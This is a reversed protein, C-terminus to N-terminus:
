AVLPPDSSGRCKFDRWLRGQECVHLMTISASETWFLKGRAGSPLEAHVTFGTYFPWVFLCFLAKLSLHYSLAPQFYQLISGMSCEAASRVQMLRYMYNIKFVM